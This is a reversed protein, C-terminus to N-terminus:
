LSLTAYGLLLLFIWAIMVVASESQQPKKFDRAKSEWFGFPLIYEAFFGSFWVMAGIVTVGFLGAAAVEIGQLLFLRSVIFIAIGIFIVRSIHM